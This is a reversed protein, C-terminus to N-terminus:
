LLVEKLAEVIVPFDEEQLTRVDLLYRGEHIRGIIPRVGTRLAEELRNVNGSLGIAYSHLGHNPVSGGGVRGETPIIETDIGANHLLASLQAAKQQLTEPNASLM